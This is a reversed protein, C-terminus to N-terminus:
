RIKGEKRALLHMYRAIWRYPEQDALTKELHLLAGFFSPDELREHPVYDAFARVGCNAAVSLGLAELWDGVEQATYAQGSVGFLGAPFTGDELRRLAGAPDARSWIQRLVEAHRNVFSLSLLGGERLLGALGALAAQPAPLYEILTHCTIADFFGAEFAQPAQEVDMTCFQLRDRAEEALTQAAQRAEDIMASSGDLLWVQYGQRALVLALEGSGGGADLVRPPRREDHIEPL